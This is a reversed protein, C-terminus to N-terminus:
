MAEGSGDQLILICGCSLKKAVVELGGGHLSAYVISCVESTPDGNAECEDQIAEWTRVAKDEVVNETEVTKALVSDFEVDAGVTIDDSM